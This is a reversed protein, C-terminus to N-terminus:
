FGLSEKAKDFSWQPGLRRANTVLWDARHEARVGDPVKTAEGLYILNSVRIEVLCREIGESVVKEIVASSVVQGCLVGMDEPNGTQVSLTERPTGKPSFLGCYILIAIIQQGLSNYVKSNIRFYQADVQAEGSTFDEVFATENKCRYVAIEPHGPQISVQIDGSTVYWVDTNYIRKFRDGFLVIFRDVDEGSDQESFLVPKKIKTESM